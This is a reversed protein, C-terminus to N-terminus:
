RSDKHTEEIDPIGYDAKEIIYSLM